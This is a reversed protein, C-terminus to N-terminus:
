EFREIEDDDVVKVLHLAFAYILRLERLGCVLLIRQVSDRWFEYESERM